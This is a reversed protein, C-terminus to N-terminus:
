YYVVADITINVNDKTMVSQRKLDLLTEKTDVKIVSESYPNIYNLGPNLIRKFKGFEQVVGVFGQPIEQYPSPL